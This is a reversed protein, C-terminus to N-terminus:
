QNFLAIFFALTIPTIYPKSFLRDADIQSPVNRIEELINMASAPDISQLIKLCAAEDKKRILLWRPSEPVRIIMMLFLLAPIIEVGLM